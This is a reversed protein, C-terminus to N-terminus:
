QQRFFTNVTLETLEGQNPFFQAFGEDDTSYAGNMTVIGARQYRFYRNIENTLYASTMDTEANGALTNLLQTIYDPDQDIKRLILDLASNIYNRQRAMRARNTGDSVDMRGRVYAEAQRGTLTLTAGQVMAPDIHSFDDTLTVTVGGLADNLAAIGNLDITFFHDIPIGGMLNSVADMTNHNGSKGKGSFAQALCIQANMSGAFDGFVGYTDVKTITDRDIQIPTILKRETDISLLMLFDAQSGYRSSTVAGDIDRRDVGILLINVIEGRRYSYKVDDRTLTVPEPFRGELSGYVEEGTIKSELGGTAFIYIFIGVFAIIVLAITFAANRRPVRQTHRGHRHKGSM